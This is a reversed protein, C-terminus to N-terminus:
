LPPHQDPSSSSSGKGDHEGDFLERRYRLKYDGARACSWEMYHLSQLCNTSEPLLAAWMRQQASSLAWMWPSLRSLKVPTRAKLPINPENWCPHSPALSTSSAMSDATNVLDMSMFSCSSKLSKTRKVNLRTVHPHRKNVAHGLSVDILLRHVDDRQWIIKNM